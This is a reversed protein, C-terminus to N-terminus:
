NKLKKETIRRADLRFQCSSGYGWGRNKRSFGLTFGMQTGQDEWKSTLKHVLPDESQPDLLLENQGAKFRGEPNFFVLQIASRQRRDMLPTLSFFVFRPSDSLGFRLLIKGDPRAACDLNLVRADPDQVSKFGDLGVAPASDTERFAEELPTIRHGRQQINGFAPNQAVLFQELSDKPLHLRFLNMLEATRNRNSLLRQLISHLLNADRNELARRLEPLDSDRLELRHTRAYTLLRTEDQSLWAQLDPLGLTFGFYFSSRGYWARRGRKRGYAPLTQDPFDPFLSARDFFAGVERVYSNLERPTTSSDEISNEAIILLSGPDGNKFAEKDMLMSIRASLTESSGLLANHEILKRSATRFLHRTGGPLRVETEISDESRDQRRNLFLSITSGNTRTWNLHDTARDYIRVVSPNPHDADSRAEDESSILSGLVARHFADRANQNELDYKYAVDIEKRHFRSAEFFFPIVQTSLNGLQLQFSTDKFLFIGQFVNRWDLGANIRLSSGLGRIRSVRVKAFRDDLKMVSVEYEGDLYTEIATNAGFYLDTSPIVQWGFTGRFGVRGTLNYAIVEGDKMKRLDSRSFPMRFPLTFPNLINKLKASLNPNLNLANLYPNLETIDETGPPAPDPGPAPLKRVEMPSLQRYNKWELTGRVGFSIGFFPFSFGVEDPGPNVRDTGYGILNSSLRLRMRDVVTWSGILDYNNYVDRTTSVNLSTSGTFNDVFIDSSNEGDFLAGTFRSNLDD